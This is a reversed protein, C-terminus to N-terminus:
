AFRKFSAAIVISASVKAEDAAVNQKKKERDGGERSGWYRRL